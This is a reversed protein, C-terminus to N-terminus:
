TRRYTEAHDSVGASVCPRLSKGSFGLTEPVTLRAPRSRLTLIGDMAMGYGLGLGGDVDGNVRKCGDLVRRTWPWTGRSVGVCRTEGTWTWEEHADLDTEFYKAWGWCVRWVRDVGGIL